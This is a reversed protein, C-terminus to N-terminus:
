QCAANPRNPCLLRNAWTVAIHTGEGLYTLNPYALSGGANLFLAPARDPLVNGGYIFHIEGSSVFTAGEIYLSGGANLMINAAGSYMEGKVTIDGGAILRLGRELRLARGQEFIINHDEGVAQILYDDIQSPTIISGGARLTISGDSTLHNALIIDKNARLMLNHSTSTPNDDFLVSKYTIRNAIIKIDKVEEGVDVNTKIAGAAEIRVSALGVNLSGRLYIDNRALLSVNQNNPLATEQTNITIDYAKISIPRNHSFTLDDANLSINTNGQTEISVDIVMSGTASFVLHKDLTENDNLGDEFVIREARLVLDGSRIERLRSPLVITGGPNILVLSVNGFDLIGNEDIDFKDFVSGDALLSLLRFTEDQIITTVILAWPVSSQVEPGKYYIRPREGVDLVFTAPSLNGFVESNQELDVASAMLTPQNIFNIKGIGRKAGTVLLLRGTGVNFAGEINLSATALVDLNRNSPRLPLANSTLAIYQATILTSSEVDFMLAGALANLTLTGTGLNILSSVAINATTANVTLNKDRVIAWEPVSAQNGTWTIITKDRKISVAGNIANVNFFLDASGIDFDGRFTLLGRSTITLTQNSPTPNGRATFSIDTAAISTPLASDFEITNATVRIDGSGFDLQGIFIVKATSDIVVNQNGAGLTGKSTLTINGGTITTQESIDFQIAGGIARLTLSATGVDISVPVRIDATQAAITINKATDFAWQLFFVETGSWDFTLASRRFTPEGTVAATTLTAHGSGVDFIGNLSIQSAAILTLDQNSPQPNTISNFTITQATITTPVTKDFHIAGVIANLELSGTGINVNTPVFIDANQSTITLNKNMELAGQPIDAVKGTWNIHLANRGFTFTGALSTAVISLNGTGINFNGNLTITKSASLLLNSNSPASQANAAMLTINDASIRTLTAVPFEIEGALAALTLNGRGLDLVPLEVFPAVIIDGLIATFSLTKDVQIVWAPILLDGTGAITIHTENRVFSDPAGSLTNATLTLNGSGIDYDGVLSLTGTATLTLDANSSTQTGITMITLDAANISTLSDAVFKIPLATAQLFLDQAVGDRDSASTSTSLQIERAILSTNKRFITGGDAGTSLIFQAGDAPAQATLNIQEVGITINNLATLTLSENTQNGLAVRGSRSAAIAIDNAEVSVSSTLTIELASLSFDGTGLTISEWEWSVRRSPAAISVNHNTNNKISAIAGLTLTGAGEYTIFFNNTRISDPLTINLSTLSISEVNFNGELEILADANIVLRQGVVSPALASEVRVTGGSLTIEVDAPFIISNDNLARISLSKDGVNLSTSVYIDANTSSIALTRGIAVFEELVVFSRNGTLHISLGNSVISKSSEFFDADITVINAGVNIDVDLSVLETEGRTGLVLSAGNILGGTPPAPGKKDAELTINRAAIYTLDVIDFNIAGTTNVVLNGDGLNILNPMNIDAGFDAFISVNVNMPTLWAPIMFPEDGPLEIVISNTDIVVPNNDDTSLLGTEFTLIAKNTAGININGNLKVSNARLVLGRNSPLGPSASSLEISNAVFFSRASPNFRIRGGASASLTLNGTGLNISAPLAIIAGRTTNITLDRNIGIVWAPVSFNTIGRWNITTNNRTFFPTGTISDATITLDGTGIDYNGNLVLDGSTTLTLNRDTASGAANSTLTIGGAIINTDEDAAFSIGSTANILTLKGGAIDLRAPVVIFQNGTSTVSLDQGERIMWLPIEFVALTNSITATLSGRIFSVSDVTIINRAILTLNGRGLNLNNSINFNGRLSIDETATLTLDHHSPTPTGSSYFTIQRATITTSANISFNISSASINLQGSGLRISTPLFVHGNSSTLTFNNDEAFVWEPFVFSSSGNWTVTTNQRIFNPTGNLNDGFVITLNGSGVNYLGTLSVNNTGRIALDQNSPSAQVATSALTINTGRLTITRATTFNIANRNATISIDGSTDINQNINITQAELTLGGNDKDIVADVTIATGAALSINGNFNQIAAASIIFNGAGDNAAIAGDNIENDNTTAAGITINAPDLLLEAAKVKFIDFSALHQKGSVEVFGDKTNISGQFNTSGDSWIIVRGNKQTSTILADSGVITKQSNAISGKGQFGGGVLVEKSATLRATSDLKVENAGEVIIRQAEIVGGVNVVNNNSLSQLHVEGLPANIVGNARVAGGSTTASASALLGGVNVVSGAGFLVGAPNELAVKGNANLTGSINTEVGNRVKISILASTSPQTISVVEGSAIDFSEWSTGLYASDQRIHLPNSLDGQGQIIRGGNPKASAHELVSCFLITAFLAYRFINLRMFMSMMLASM